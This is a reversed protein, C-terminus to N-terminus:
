MLSAAANQRKRIKLLSSKMRRHCFPLLRRNGWWAPFPLQSPASNSKHPRASYEFIVIDCKMTIRFLAYAVKCKKLM